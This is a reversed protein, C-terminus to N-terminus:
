GTEAFESIRRSARETSYRNPVQAGPGEFPAPRRHEDARMRESGTPFHLRRSRVLARRAPEVGRASARANRTSPCINSRIRRRQNRSRLSCASSAPQSFASPGCSGIRQANNLTDSRAERRVSNLPASFSLTTTSQHPTGILPPWCRRSRSTWHWTSPACCGSCM